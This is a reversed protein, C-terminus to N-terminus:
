FSFQPSFFVSPVDCVDFREPQPKVVAELWGLDRSGRFPAGRELGKEQALVLQQTAEPCVLGATIWSFIWRFWSEGM